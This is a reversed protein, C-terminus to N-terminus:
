LLWKNLLLRQVLANGRLPEPRKQQDLEANIKERVLKDFFRVTGPYIEIGSWRDKYKVATRRDIGLMEALEAATLPKGLQDLQSIM